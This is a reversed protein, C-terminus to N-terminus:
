SRIRHPEGSERVRERLTMVDRVIEVNEQSM